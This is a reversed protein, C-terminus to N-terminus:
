AYEAIMIFQSDCEPVDPEVLMRALKQTCREQLGQLPLLGHWDEEIASVTPKPAPIGAVRTGM